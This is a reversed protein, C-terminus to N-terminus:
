CSPTQDQATKNQLRHHIQTTKTPELYPEKYAGFPEVAIFRTVVKWSQRPLCQGVPAQYQGTTAKVGRFSLYISLYISLHVSMRIYTYTYIYICTYISTYTYAHMCAHIYYPNLTIGHLTFKISHLRAHHLSRTHHLTTYHLTIYHM